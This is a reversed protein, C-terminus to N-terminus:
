RKNSEIFFFCFFLVFNKNAHTLKYVQLAGVYLCINPFRLVVVYLVSVTVRNGDREIRQTFTLQLFKM